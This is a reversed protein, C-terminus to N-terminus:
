TASTELDANCTVKSLSLFPKFFERHLERNRLSSAGGWRTARREAGSRELPRFINQLAKPFSLFSLGPAKQLSLVSCSCRSRGFRKQRSFFPPKVRKTGGIKEMQECREPQTKYNLPFGIRFFFTKCTTWTKLFVHACTKRSTWIFQKTALAVSSILLFMPKAAEKKSKSPHSEGPRGDSAPDFSARGDGSFM